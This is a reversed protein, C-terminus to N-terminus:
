VRLRRPASARGPRLAIATITYGNYDARALARDRRAYVARSVTAAHTFRAMGVGMHSLVNHAIIRKVWLVNDEALMLAGHLAFYLLPLGYGANVPLSIAIEHLIGSLLFAVLTAGPTGLRKKLPKYAIRHGDNRFLCPELPPGWFEKLSMAKYPARFLERVDAGLM